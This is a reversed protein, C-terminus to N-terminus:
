PLGALFEAVDGAEPLGLTEFLNLALAAQRRALDLQGRLHHARALGDHAGALAPTNGTETALELAASHDRIAQAADDCARVTEGLGNLAAAMDSRNGLSGFLEVAQRHYRHAEDLMGHRRCLTGLKDLVLAEGLQNDAQRHLVLARDLHDRAQPYQSEDLVLALSGLVHAEGSRNGIERTLRLATQFHGYAEALDRQRWCINGLTNHARAEEFRDGSTRAATLAQESYQTADPYEGQRWCTWGLDTLARAEGSGDALRRNAALAVAHLRVADAHHSYGDLYPRLTAAMDRAYALRDHDAAHLTAAILNDREAHLWAAAADPDEFATITVTAPPLPSRDAASHRFRLDVAARATHLYHDLLQSLSDDRAIDSEDAAVIAAAYARLLDHLLYRGPEQQTAAHVDLLGELVLEADDSCPLGALAAAAAPDVDRGPLLGLLRFMRQQGSTLQSYSLAFAAAVGRESTSLEALRRREDRLREALYSVTWQPRHLLRAAAIRVALPLFGCLQLVDLAAVPQAAAREGVIQEFLAVADRPPLVQMSVAQAGDLDVLRRRSTILILSDTAAPLLPRIHNTDAANDLVTVIRRGILETRWLAGRDSEDAPIRNPPIGIQRLLIELAAAPALAAGDAAYAQLDVFLQGDPYRDTLRHAVHVALATKGVGAMGDVAVVGGSGCPAAGLRNLEAERGAFDPIDYPLFNTRRPPPNPSPPPTPSSTAPRHSEVPEADTHNAPLRLRPDDRLIAQELESFSSGPDLGHREVLTNRLSRATALADSQRGSRYLALMLQGALRERLPNEALAAILEDLLLEHSGLSLELDMLREFASLRQEHLRARAGAVYDATLDALADGRWLALGTRLKAAAAHTDAERTAAAVHGTFEALDFQDPTPHAVYGAARTEIVSAADTNRLVRRIATLAAHIQARATVPADLGWVADVLRDITCVRGDNLLLYTLVGRHRPALATAQGDVTIEVPGLISFHVQM